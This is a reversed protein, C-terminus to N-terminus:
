ADNAQKEFLRLTISRGDQSQLVISTTSIETVLYGSLENGVTLQRSAQQSSNGEQASLVAFHQSDHQVSFIGVLRYRLDGIWLQQLLGRQQAQEEASMGEVPSVDDVNQEVANAMAISAKFDAISQVLLTSPMPRALPMVAPMSSDESSETSPLLRWTIDVLAFVLLFPYLPAPFVRLLHMM